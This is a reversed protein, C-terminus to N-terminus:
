CALCCRASTWLGSCASAGSESRYFEGRGYAWMAWGAVALAATLHAAIYRFHLINLTVRHENCPCDNCSARTPSLAFYFCHSPHFCPVEAEKPPSASPEWECALGGGHASSCLRQPLCVPLTSHLAELSPAVQYHDCSM